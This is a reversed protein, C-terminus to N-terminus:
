STSHNAQRRLWRMVLLSAIASVGVLPIDILLFAWSVEFEGSILTAVIGCGIALLVGLWPRMSPRILGLVSGVFLGCVVPFLEGSIM